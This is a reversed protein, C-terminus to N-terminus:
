SRETHQLNGRSIPPPLMSCCTELMSMPLQSLPATSTVDAATVVEITSDVVETTTTHDASVATTVVELGVTKVSEESVAHHMNLLPKPSLDSPVGPM